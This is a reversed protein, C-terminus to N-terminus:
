GLFDKVYEVTVDGTTDLTTEGSTASDISVPSLTAEAPETTDTPVLAGEETDVRCRSVLGCGSTCVCVCTGEFGIGAGVSHGRVLDRAMPLTLAEKVARQPRPSTEPGM